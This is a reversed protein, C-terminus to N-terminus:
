NKTTTLQDIENKLEEYTLPINHFIRKNNNYILTAPIAGSWATDVKPIWANADPEDLVIVKSQFNMKKVFPILKSEINNPFDLSTLIVKVKKNKFEQQIKEINPLEKECPKCWTTWFNLIYISDNNKHLM